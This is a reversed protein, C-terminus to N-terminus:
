YDCGQSLYTKLMPVELPNSYVTRFGKQYGKVINVIEKPYFVGEAEGYKVAKVRTYRNTGEPVDDTRERIVFQPMGTRENFWVTERCPVSADDPMGEWWDTLGLDSEIVTFPEGEVGYEKALEGVVPVELNMEQHEHVKTGCEWITYEYFALDEGDFLNAQWSEGRGFTGNNLQGAPTITFDAHGGETSTGEMKFYLPFRTAQVTLSSTEPMGENKRQAMYKRSWETESPAFIETKELFSLTDIKQFNNRYGAILSTVKQLDEDSFLTPGEYKAPKWDVPRIIASSHEILEDISGSLDSELSVEKPPEGVPLTQGPQIPKSPAQIVGPAEGEKALLFTLSIAAIGAVGVFAIFLRKRSM